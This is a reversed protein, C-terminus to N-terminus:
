LGNQKRIRIWDDYVHQSRFFPTTHKWTPHARQLEMAKIHSSLANGGPIKMKYHGVFEHVFVNQINEVTNLLKAAHNGNFTITNGKALGIAERHIPKGGNAAWADYAGTEFNQGGDYYTSISGNHMESFSSADLGYMSVNTRKSVYDLASNIVNVQAQSNPNFMPKGYQLAAQQSPLGTSSAKVIQAFHNQSMFLLGGQFSNSTVGMFAGNAIDFIPGYLSPTSSAGQGATNLVPQAAGSSWGNFLSGYDISGLGYGIAGGVIAGGFGALLSQGHTAGNNRAVNYASVGGVVMGAVTGIFQGALMGFVFQGDPDTYILPNNRAYSYRNYDQTFAGDPVYNDPSLMRGLVPDYMRGNMNILGFQDLHEHGPYGRYLWVPPLESTTTPPLLAWTLPNRRRGWADFSQEASTVVNASADTLTLISGLHDTYTYYTIFSSNQKIIIAALGAPSTIYHLERDTGGGNDKEYGNSFYYRTYIDTTGNKLVSKIRQYDADYTYSLEYNGEQVKEPQMFPTYTIDQQMLPIPSAPAPNTVGIVANLKTPHYSYIGADTKTDINGNPHYTTSFAGSTGSISSGTLRNLNDYSFSETKITGREDSRSTLNGKQYDWVMSLKQIFTSSSAALTEYKTPFGNTYQINSSKNGKLYDTIQGQGNMATTSYLSTSGNKINTLYGNINYENSIVLQSPYTTTIVDGFNNYTFSTTHGVNDVTETMSQVRGFGDYVYTTKNNATFGAVEKIMNKSEGSTNTTGYIYSTTVDTEPQSTTETRSIIQGLVNYNMTSIQGKSNIQKTLQDFADYLYTTV